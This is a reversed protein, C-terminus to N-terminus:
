GVSEKGSEPVRPVLTRALLLGLAFAVVTGVIGALATAVTVSSFGPMQYGAIPAKAEHSKLGISEAFHDLGDPWPCAFPAVFAALGIAILLGFVVYDLRSARPSDALRDDVLEPRTQMVAFVILTTLIAEGIGILMHVGGMAPLAITWRTVGSASLEGACVVSAAVTACWAAFAVAALRGRDGPLYQRVLAYVMYGGVSNVIGMNFVNAGLALIGGDAFVFCQVLLVSALVLVAAAPGLLVSALVGGILHGSTGGGVPFNLMQAAFIFAASLGMLPIKRPPLRLRVQRLSIGVGAASLAATAVAVKADLFGDPIHM